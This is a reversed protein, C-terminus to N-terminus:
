LGHDDLPEGLLKRFNGCVKKGELERQIWRLTERALRLASGYVLKPNAAGRIGMSLPFDTFFHKPKKRASMVRAFMANESVLTIDNLAVIARQVKEAIIRAAYRILYEDNLLEGNRLKGVYEITERYSEWLNQEVIRRTAKMANRSKIANRIAQTPDHIIKGSSFEGRAWYFNGADGFSKLRKFSCAGIAVYIGDDFYCLDKPLRGGRMIAVIDIDCYPMPEGRRVSGNVVIGLANPFKALIMAKARQLVKDYKKLM